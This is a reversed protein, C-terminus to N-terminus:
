VEETVEALHQFILWLKLATQYLNNNQNQIKHILLSPHQHQRYVNGKDADEGVDAVEEQQKRHASM